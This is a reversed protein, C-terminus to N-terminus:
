KEEVQKLHNSIEDPGFYFADIRGNSIHLLTPVAAIILNKPNEVSAYDIEPTKIDTYVDRGIVPFTYTIVKGYKNVQNQYKELSESKLYVIKGNEDLYGIKKNHQERLPDWNYKNVKNTPLSYDVLFVDDRQSAFEIMQQKISNCYPCTTYYFYVYYSTFEQNFMDSTSIKNLGEYPDEEAAFAFNLGSGLGSGLLLSFVLLSLVMKTLREKMVRKM